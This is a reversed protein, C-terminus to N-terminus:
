ACANAAVNAAKAAPRRPRIAVARTGGLGGTTRKWSADADIAAMCGSGAAPRGATSTIAVVDGAAFVGPVSTLAAREVRSVGVADM